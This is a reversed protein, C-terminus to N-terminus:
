RPVLSNKLGDRIIGRVTERKEELSDTIYNGRSKLGTRKSGYFLFAPYYTKMEETKKVGIKVWGGKSGRSVIGIARMLAGTRQRPYEGPKSGEWEMHTYMQGM